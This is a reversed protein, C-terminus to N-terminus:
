NEQLELNLVVKQVGVKEELLQADQVLLNEKWEKLCNPFQHYWVIVLEQMTNFKDPDNTIVSLNITLTSMKNAFAPVYSSFQGKSHWVHRYYCM